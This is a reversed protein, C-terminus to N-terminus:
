PRMIGRYQTYLANTVEDDNTLRAPMPLVSGSALATRAKAIVQQVEALEWRKRTDSLNLIDRLAETLEVIRAERLEIAEVADMMMKATPERNLTKAQAAGLSLRNVLDNM